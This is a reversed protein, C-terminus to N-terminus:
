KSGWVTREMQLQSELMAIRENLRVIQEDKDKLAARSIDRGRLVGKMKMEQRNFLERLEEGAGVPVDVGHKELIRLVQVSLDSSTALPSEGVGPGRGANRYRTPSPTLLPTEQNSPGTGRVSGGPTMTGDRGAGEDDVSRKRKAPSAVDATRPTKRAPLGFKPQRLPQSSEFVKEMEDQLGDSWDFEDTDEAMM